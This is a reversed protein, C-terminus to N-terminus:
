HLPTEQTKENSYAPTVVNDKQTPARLWYIPQNMPSIFEGPQRLTSGYVMEAASFGVDEKIAARMGLLVLPLCDVWNQPNPQARLATKLTRKCENLWAM